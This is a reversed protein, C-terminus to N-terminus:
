TEEPFWREWFFRDPDTATAVNTGSRVMVVNAHERTPAWVRDPALM